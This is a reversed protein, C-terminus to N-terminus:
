ADVVALALSIVGEADDPLEVFIYADGDPGQTLAAPDVSLTATSIEQTCAREDSARCGPGRVAAGLEPYASSLEIRHEGELAALDELQARDLRYVWDRSRVGTCSHEHRDGAKGPDASLDLELATTSGPPPLDVELARACTDGELVECRRYGDQAIECSLGGDCRGITNPGCPEGQAYVPRLDIELQFALPDDGGEELLAPDLPDIGISGVIRTGGRVSYLTAPSADRCQYANGEVCQASLLEVRPTFTEAHVAMFLDSRSQVDVAFFVQPGGLGCAGGFDEDAGRLAGEYLGPSFIPAENCNSAFEGPDSAAGGTEGTEGSETEEPAGEDAGAEESPAQGADESADGGGCAPFLLALGLLSAM